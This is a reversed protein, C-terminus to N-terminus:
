LGGRLAGGGLGGRQPRGRCVRRAGAGRRRGEEGPIGRDLRSGRGGGDGGGAHREQRPARASPGGRVGKGGGGGGRLLLFHLFSFFFTNQIKPQTFRLYDSTVTTAHKYGMYTPQTITPPCAFLSFLFVSLAARAACVCAALPSALCLPSTHTKRLRLAACASVPLGAFEPPSPSILLTRLPAVHRRIDPNRERTARAERM